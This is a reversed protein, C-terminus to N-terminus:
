NEDLKRGTCIYGMPTHLVDETKRRFALWDLLFAAPDDSFKITPGKMASHTTEESVESCDDTKTVSLGLSATLFDWEQPEVFLRGALIGLEFRFWTPFNHEKPLAPLCYYRMDNFCLMARTAPAAYAILHVRATIGDLRLSPILEEAEEPTIVLATETLPSWLIWEVPRMFNDAPAPDAVTRMFEKSVSLSSGTGRVGHKVGLTTCGVYTLANPFSPESLAGSRVFHSIAPHLGPWTLSQYRPPRQTQRVQELQVQVEREQEVEDLAGAPLLSRRSTYKSLTETFDRLTPILLHQHGRKSTKLFDAGYLQELTQREPQRLVDLLKDRDSKSSFFNSYRWQADTRRCFDLGQAVHLTQLDENVRCTQELLWSVVHSSDIKGHEQLSCFDKISRDVDPPAFFTVSQTTGLQRLRMAAQMTFDKTQKLALTLAGRASLPFKLDVGRTHAEDLYVLCEDLNDAFPTALLPVDNKIESRYHVYARNDQGFYVAAKAKHDVSLWTKALTQNDMEQVYAGADILLRINNAWLRELLQHETLPKGSSEIMVHYGRNRPQLLYLLVEANTHRLSSLDDQQITLPLLTRNDNTGSFGTTRAGGPAEPNFLPVDWASAQLKVEFQKAHAPFVFHNLYHDVVVRDLRVHRWLLEMQATDDTNIMNWHLLAPPIGKCGSTWREYQAAPDDSQLVLQLSERFQNQALGSYYFALSTFLIAVDPHGFESQESPTGKAEFPVAIPHRGAHLGYHVNWRKSLCLVLIKNLLLGRVVLLKKTAAADNIFATTATSFASEDYEEQCLVKQIAAKAKVNIPGTSRLFTTKGTCIGELLLTHLAIEVDSRLFRVEPISASKKIVDISGPFRRKLSAMHGFAMALLGQSVQWRGPHGDVATESGSPYNLQTKTSLTFDSEDLVDRCTKNLWSQFSMMKRAVELKNDVLQQKGSLEYSLVHEHSTLILGNKARVDRHIEAYLELMEPTTPTRRSFPLHRVERGVLGGLRLQVTQATQMLLAKPVVLRSMNMGDALTAIVMPVICSTKGKGMNMQLVSNQKSHPDIIARAVDVQEPRILLNSDIEILLWDTMEFPSWNEHGPNRMEETLARGDDRSLARLIRALRQLNAFTVGCHVLAEKMGPGFEHTATSRLLTLLSLPSECPWIGGARLWEARPDGTALSTRIRDLYVALDEQLRLFSSTVIEKAPISHRAESQDLNRAAVLSQLLDDAYQQRLPDDPMKFKKLIREFEGIESRFQDESAMTTRRGERTSACNLVLDVGDIDLKPGVKVLMDCQLSPHVPKPSQLGFEPPNDNWSVLKATNIMGRRSDLTAQVRGVFAKLIMNARRREWEPKIAEIAAAMDICRFELGEALLDDAAIPWQKQICAAFEHAEEECLEQHKAADTQSRKRLKGNGCVYTPQFSRYASELFRELDPLPPVQSSSLNVFSPFDPVELDKLYDIYHFAALSRVVDMSPKPHFALLALCFLVATDNKELRCFNVLEGWREAIPEEIQSILPRANTVSGGGNRFGGIVKYSELYSLLPSIQPFSSYGHLLMQSVSYVNEGQFTVKRDRSAYVAPLRTKHGYDITPREYIERQREGRFRLHSPEASGVVDLSEHSFKALRQSEAIISCVLSDYSDHQISATLNKDWNVRQLRKNKAPYYERQPTLTQLQILIGLAGAGLRTWPKSAGSRLIALAEESGTRSTLRDPLCFSTLAHCHALTYLLRPEPACSLRGLISDIRYRGYEGTEEMRVDVHIGLRRHKTQALPVIISRSFVPIDKLVIKSRLGYWTGADQNTDIEAGLQRCQLIGRGNVYFSLDMQRIEVTLRSAESTPQFVTLWEPQVFYRFIGAIESFISSQPNVLRVNGRYAIRPQLTIQWDRPRKVWISPRRRVEICKTDLNLWHVCNDMLEAPLDFSESNSFIHKPIFELLGNRSITRVTVQGQRVGFHIEQNYWCAELRHTMGPYHSPYALLHQDGFLERIAPDQRIELPLKGRSHRNVLLHGEVVNCHVTQTTSFRSGSSFTAAAWQDEPSELFTWDSFSLRSENPDESWSRAIGNGISSPYLECASRLLPQLNYTMKADRILLAKERPPLSDINGLQFEQLALSAQIWSALDTADLAQTKEAHTAFTRRCLLAAYFGYRASHEAISATSADRVETRLRSTWTLTANRATKLLSTAKTRSPEESLSYLRLALTVLLEMYNNERWNTRITQLKMEVVETLRSAFDAEEFICHAAGLVNDALQPGAQVAAQCILRMTEDNSFNLNSSSMEVLINIWRRANGGLIKQYASSEHVSLGPPVTSQNAQIEYSSPGRTVTPPHLDLALLQVKLANPVYVGCLHQLTLDKKLDHVWLGTEGDYLQFKAAFPLLIDKCPVKGRRFKYHTQSFCKIVSALSVSQMNASAFASVAKCDRLAVMPKPSTSVRCPHAFSHLIKWTANRYASIFEPMGLEFIMISRAPNKKPLFDEHADISIRKRVRGHWCKKCGDVNIKGSSPDTSCRCVGNSFDKTHRDYNECAALWEHEKADRAEDSASQIRDGLALMEPSSSVFRVALCNEDLPGLVSDYWSTQHRENLYSQIERLHSMEAVTPLQLVDLLEPVFAPRHHGIIPRLIIVCRELYVWLLFLHLLKASLHEPDSGYLTGAAEIYDHIQRAVDTCRGELRRRPIPAKSQVVIGMETTRLRFVQQTFNQSQMISKDLSQPLCYSTNNRDQVPKFSLLEDFYSRSNPLSLHFNDEGVRCPLKPVRRATARKFSEWSTNLHSTTVDVLAKVLPRLRELISRCATTRSAGLAACDAELKAMRRCLKARLTAVLEPELHDTCKELLSSFLIGMLCKYAFRGQQNGLELSLQRQSAVRLVLWFPLRRWPLEANNINVDDRISKRLLPADFHCGLAELLPLLMQTILAPDTTDRVEVVSVGAKKTSAQLFPLSEMSAQELFGSLSEQFGEDAFESFPIRASRGPFDWQLAHGAALVDQSTPSTEFAEFIVNRGDDLDERRILLAANQERVHLILMYGPCLKRFHDLLAMKDIGGVNLQSCVDLSRKLNQFSQKWPEDAMDLIVDCASILRRLVDHSLADADDDARGPLHYPLVLHNFVARLADM